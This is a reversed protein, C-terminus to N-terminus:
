EFDDLGVWLTMGLALLIYGCYVLPLGPDRVIELGSWQWGVPDYSSQYIRYGGFKLPRNVEVTGSAAERGGELVAVRSSYSKIRESGRDFFVIRGGRLTRSLGIPPFHPFRAFVWGREREGGAMVEIELAPNNPDRSKSAIEGSGSMKFDPLYRVPLVRMGEPGTWRGITVPYAALSNGGPASIGLELKEGPYREVSFRDLRLSFGPALLGGDREAFEGIQQGEYLRAGGRNGAYKGLFAGALVLLAGLRIIPLWPKRLGRRVSVAAGFLINLFLLGLLIVFARSGFVAPAHAPPLLAACASIGATVALLVVTARNSAFQSLLMPMGTHRSRVCGVYM